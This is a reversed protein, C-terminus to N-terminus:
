WISEILQQANRTNNYQKGLLRQRLIIEEEGFPKHYLQVVISRLAEATTGVHCAIGLGNEDVTAENVVCHRGNFLANLLKLKVGTANFSPLINVQAKAILDNMEAEDPNSVLCTHCNLYSLRQLRASPNKGAIVFPVKIKSFVHELLWCAAEENEAVSLNGHYLCFNGIGEKSNIEEYPTFAPLYSIDSVGFKDRYTHVDKESVAIITAKKAVKKEYVKLLRSENYFYAKKLFSKETRFLNHYYQYEVNHLRLIIKRNKLAGCYLPYTCHIGELIVPYSDKLLNRCLEDSSRSAVIYPITISFGKHGQNRQYYHVEECYQNLTEPNGRGYEFCHLHIKIGREHLSKIKYFLDFVGGYDVPYPVDLCVIHVHKDM